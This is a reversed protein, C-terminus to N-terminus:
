AAPGEPSTAQRKEWLGYAARWGLLFIALVIMAVIIFSLATGDGTLQRLLMGIVVTFSWIPIGSGLDLPARRGTRLVLLWGLATGVLFPWATALAGVVANGEEHNARGIAAFVLVLLVDLALAFWARRPM